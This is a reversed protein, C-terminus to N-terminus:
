RSWQVTVVGSVCYKTNVVIPSHLFSAVLCRNTSVQYRYCMTVSIIAILCCLYMSKYVLVLAVLLHFSLLWMTVPRDCCLSVILFNAIYSKAYLSQIVYMEGMSIALPQGRASMLTFTTTKCICQMFELM